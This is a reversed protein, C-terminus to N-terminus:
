HGHSPLSSFFSLRVEKGILTRLCYILASNAVAIPANYNCNGERGTGTFDVKAGGTARDITMTMEIPTGDDMFDLAHLPRGEFRDYTEILFERVAFEANNRIARM